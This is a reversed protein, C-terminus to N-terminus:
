WPVRLGLSVERSQHRLCWLDNFAPSPPFDRFHLDGSFRTVKRNRLCLQRKHALKRNWLAVSDKIIGGLYSSSPHVHFAHFLHWRCLLSLESFLNFTSWFLRGCRNIGDPDIRTAPKKTSLTILLSAKVSRHRGPQQCGAAYTPLRAPHSNRSESNYVRLSM